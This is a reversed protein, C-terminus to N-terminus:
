GLIYFLRGGQWKRKNSDIKM